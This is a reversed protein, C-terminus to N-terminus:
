NNFRANQERLEDRIEKMLNEMNQFNDNYNTSETYKTIETQIETIYPELKKGILPLDILTTLFWGIIAIVVAAGILTGVGRAVGAVFNPWLMRWPSRIYEIFEQMGSAEIAEVLNELNKIQEKSLEKKIVNEELLPSKEINKTNIDALKEELIESQHTTEPNNEEEHSFKKDDKTNM